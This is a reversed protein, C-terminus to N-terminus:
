VKKGQKRKIERIEREREREGKKKREREEKKREKKREKESERKRVKEGGYSGRWRYIYLCTLDHTM